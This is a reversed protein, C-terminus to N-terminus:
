REEREDESTSKAEDWGDQWVEREETGPPYPCNDRAIGAGYAEVGQQFIYPSDWV